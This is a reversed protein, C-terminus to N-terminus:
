TGLDEGDTVGVVLFPLEELQQAAGADLQDSVDAAVRTGASLRVELAGRERGDQQLGPDPVAPEALAEAPSALRQRVRRVAGPLAVLEAAVRVVHRALLEGGSEGLELLQRAVCRTATIHASAQHTRQWRRRIASASVARPHRTRWRSEFPRSISCSSVSKATTSSPM